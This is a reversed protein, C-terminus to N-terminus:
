HRPHYRPDAIGAEALFSKRYSASVIEVAAKSSSYPDHGGLRDTERFAAGSENNEYCKDTTVNVIAKVGPTHRAAELVYVTGMVNTAFTDVPFEYSSLVLSQAAMHIIIEPKFAQTFAQLASLERIDGYHSHVRSSLGSLQYLSDPNEEPPLAFGAVECGMELLALCLWSGKFGTHGTVLVRKNKYFGSLPRSPHM